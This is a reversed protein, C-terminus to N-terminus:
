SFLQSTTSTPSDKTRTWSAVMQTDSNMILLSSVSGGFVSTPLQPCRVPGAEVAQPLLSKRKRRLKALEPQKTSVELAHALDKEKTLIEPSSSHANAFGNMSSHNEASGNFGDQASAPLFLGVDGAAKAKEKYANLLESCNQLEDETM